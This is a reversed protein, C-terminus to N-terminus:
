SAKKRPVANRIGAILGLVATIGYGITWPISQTEMLAYWAGLGGIPVIVFSAIAVAINPKRNFLGFIAAAFAALTALIILASFLNM